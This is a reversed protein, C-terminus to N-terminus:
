IFRYPQNSFCIEAGKKLSFKTKYKLLEGDVSTGNSSNLDEIFYIEDVKTIRAHQRSITDDAIMGDCNKASGILFPSNTIYIDALGEEGEYRLIGEQVSKKEALLVTPRACEVPEEDEPEFVVAEMRNKKDGHKGSSIGLWTILINKVRAILNCKNGDRGDQSIGTYEDEKKNKDLDIERRDGSMAGDYPIQKDLADKQEDPYWKGRWKEIKKQIEGLSYNDLLLEEYIGYALEVAHVNKHDTKILIYEMLHIMQKQLNGEENPYYCFYWNEKKNDWYIGEPKLLLAEQALLYREMRRCTQCIGTILKLLFEEDAQKNELIVDLAQKGTINYRLVLHGDEKQWTMDLLGEVQNHSLMEEETQTLVGEAALSMYSSQMNRIYEINM